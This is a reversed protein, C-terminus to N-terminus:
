AHAHAHERVPGDYVARHGHRRRMSWRSRLAADHYHALCLNARYIPAAGCSRCRGHAIQQQQWRRQRSVPAPTTM